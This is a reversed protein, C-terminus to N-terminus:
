PDFCAWVKEDKKSKKLEKTCDGSVYAYLPAKNKYETIKKHLSTLMRDADKALTGRLRFAIFDHLSDYEIPKNEFSALLELLRKSEELNEQESAPKFKKSLLDQYLPVEEHLFLSFNIIRLPKTKKFFSALSEANELGRGSGSVGTMIHAAYDFGFSHLRQVAIEAEVSTHEKNMFRLVDDLGSEIGLYLCSSGKAKLTRLDEDSKRLIDSVCADMNVQEVEPFYKHILDLISILRETPLSFASGDGLFFRKLHAGLKKVRLLEAEIDSLKLVKPKINRFLNCFKCKNYPCSFMVSLMFSAQEMPPRCIRSKYEMFNGVEIKDIKYFANLIGIFTSSM